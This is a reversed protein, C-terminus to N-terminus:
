FNWCKTPNEHQVHSLVSKSLSLLIPDLEPDNVAHHHSPNQFFALNPHFATWINVARLM